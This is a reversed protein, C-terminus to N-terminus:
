ILVWSMGKKWCLTTTNISLTHIHIHIHIHTHHIHHIHTDTHIYTYHTSPPHWHTHKLTTHTCRNTTNPTYMGIWPILPLMGRSLEIRQDFAYDSWVLRFMCTFIIDIVSKLNSHLVVSQAFFIVNVPWGWWLINAPCTYHLSEMSHNSHFFLQSRRTKVAFVSDSQLAGSILHSRHFCAEPAFDWWTQLQRRLVPLLNSVAFM